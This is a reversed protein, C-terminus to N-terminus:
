KSLAIPFRNTGSSVTTSLGSTEPSAYKIPIPIPNAVGGGGTKGMDKIEPAGSRPASVVAVQVTGVPVAVARYTGDPQIAGRITQKESTFVVEGSNANTGDITVTGEVIGTKAGGITCGLPVSALVALLFLPCVKRMAPM